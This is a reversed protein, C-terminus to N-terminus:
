YKSIKGMFPNIKLEQWGLDYKDAVFQDIKV